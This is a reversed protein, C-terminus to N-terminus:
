AAGAAAEGDNAAGSNNRQRTAHLAKYLDEVTAGEIGAAKAAAAIEPFVEAPVSDRGWWQQVTGRPRGIAAALEARTKWKEIIPRFSM